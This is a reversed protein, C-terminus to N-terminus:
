NAKDVIVDTKALVVSCCSALLLSFTEIFIDTQLVLLSAVGTLVSSM